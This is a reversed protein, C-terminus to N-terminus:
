YPRLGVYNGPPYYVCVWIQAKDPCIAMGCGLEKSDKWIMQTYHGCMARPTCSNTSYDYNSAEAAWAEAVQPATIKQPERRGDSWKVPSAWFLNEGLESMTHRMTCNNNMALDIARNRAIAALRNSWRLPPIGLRARIRNHTQTMGAM